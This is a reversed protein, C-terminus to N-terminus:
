RWGAPRGASCVAGCEVFQGGSRLQLCAAWTLSGALQTLRGAPARRPGGAAGARRYRRWTYAPAPRPRPPRAAPRQRRRRWSHAPARFAQSGAGGARRRSRLRRLRQPRELRLPRLFALVLVGAPRCCTQSNFGALLSANNHELNLELSAAGIWIWNTEDAGVLPWNSALAMWRPGLRTARPALKRRSFFYNTNNLRCLEALNLPNNKELSRSLRRGRGCGFSQARRSRRAM